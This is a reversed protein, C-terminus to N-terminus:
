GPRYVRPCPPDREHGSGHRFQGDASGGDGPYADIMLQAMESEAATPLGYGTGQDLAEHLADVVCQPRHGLILPGWSGVYDIFVNGDEDEVRSGYARKVFVPVEGVHAFSRVPSNVGGPM